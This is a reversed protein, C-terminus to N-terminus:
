DVPRRAADDAGTSPSGLQKSLRWAMWGLVIVGLVLTSWLLWRKADIPATLRDAGGLAAVDASAPAAIGIAPAAPTEYGPVLTEIPLASSVATASGYALVFPGGGRAAFVIQQALWGARLRPSGAGLGGTRADTHLRWYRPTGANVSIPPSNVESDGQRLRFLV